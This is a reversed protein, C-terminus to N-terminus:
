KEWYDKLTKNKLAMETLEKNLVECKLAAPSDPESRNELLYEIYSSPPTEM